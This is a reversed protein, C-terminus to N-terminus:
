CKTKSRFPTTHAYPLFCPDWAWQSGSAGGRLIQTTVLFPVGNMDEGELYFGEYTSATQNAANTRPDLYNNIAVVDHAFRKKDNTRFVVIPADDFPHLFRVRALEFGRREAVIRARQRLASRSPNPFRQAFASGSGIDVGLSGTTSWGLFPRAWGLCLKDRVGAAFLSAQWNARSYREIAVPNNGTTPEEGGAVDLQLWLPHRPQPAPGVFGRYHVRVVYPIPALSAAQLMSHAGFEHLAQAVISGASNTARKAEMPISPAFRMPAVGEV